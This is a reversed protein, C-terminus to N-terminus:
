LGPPYRRGQQERRVKEGWRETAEIEEATNARGGEPFLLKARDYGGIKRQLGRLVGVAETDSFKTVLAFDLGSGVLSSAWTIETLFLVRAWDLDSLPEGGGIAHSLRGVLERFEDWTPLGLVQFPFPKGSASWGWQELTQRIFEREDFALDVAVSEPSSTM